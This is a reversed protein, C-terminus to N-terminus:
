ETSLSSQSNMSLREGAMKKLKGVVKRAANEGAEIAARLEDKKFSSMKMWAVKPEILIDSKDVAKNEIEALLISSVRDGYDMMSDYEKEDVKNLYSQLRVAVVIPAHQAEAIETPLNSRVGGDVLSHEGITVPRYFGPASNSARIATALSGSRLWVSKTTTLDVAAASFPIETDEVNTVGEPLNREVFQAISRGSYLGIKPHILFARAAFYPAFYAITQVKRNSPFFAKKLKGSLALEEIQSIPVGAAFLGGIMAGMSNGSIFDPRLGESELVKLVGIHAAGRAGGGALTLAFGSKNLARRGGNSLQSSSDEAQKVPTGNPVSYAPVEVIKERSLAPLAQLAILGTAVLCLAHCSPKPHKGATLHIM